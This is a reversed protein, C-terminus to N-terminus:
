FFSTAGHFATAGFEYFAGKLKTFKETYSRMPTIPLYSLDGSLIYEAVASGFVTGPAIGRGSYGFISIANPGFEVLHPLHDNSYAIRGHWAHEFEIDGLYPYLKKLRHQAWNYHINGSPLDLSGVAGLILRGAQDRRISSMIMATDWCGQQEPIIKKLLAEDLPKTATQFYHVPTYIPAASVHLHQHYANTALIVADAKIVHEFTKIEWTENKRAIATVPTMQHISAGASVAACALGRLYSLPQITGAGRLHLAGKYFPTGLKNETEAKSLLDVNLGRLRYQRLREKLNELGRNSHACHLTGTQTLECDIDYKDINSFVFEPGRALMQNLKIGAVQGLLKEVKDPEMWLGSNVLGVNRGSGGDGIHGAELLLVNSGKEALRLACSVGTYGGGIVVVDVSKDKNLRNTKLLKTSTAHWLNSGIIGLPM